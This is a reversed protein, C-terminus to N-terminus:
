EGKSKDRKRFEVLNVGMLGALKIMSETGKGGPFAVVLDPNGVLLMEKNRMPGAAKGFAHWKAHFTRVPVNHNRAWDRALKDAGDAGGNIIEVITGVKQQVVSLGWDILGYDDLTRGGCVLVRIDKM